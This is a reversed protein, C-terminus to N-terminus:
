DGRPRNFNKLSNKRHCGRDFFDFPADFIRALVNGPEHTLDTGNGAHLAPDFLHSLADAGLHGPQPEILYAEVQSQSGNSPLTSFPIRYARPAHSSFHEVGPM